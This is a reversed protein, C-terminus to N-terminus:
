RGARSNLYPKHEKLLRDELVYAAERGTCPYAIWASFAKERAHTNLRISFDQTSGVYCPVNAADYLVYVVSQGTPPRWDDAFPYTGRWTGDINPQPSIRAKLQAIGVPVNENWVQTMSPRDDSAILARYRRLVEALDDPGLRGAAYDAAARHLVQSEADLQTALLKERKRIILEIHQFTAEYPDLATM